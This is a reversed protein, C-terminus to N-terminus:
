NAISTADKSINYPILLDNSIEVFLCAKFLSIHVAMIKLYGKIGNDNKIFNIIRVLEPKRGLSCSRLKFIDESGLCL